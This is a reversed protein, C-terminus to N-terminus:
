RLTIYIIIFQRIKDYQAHFFTDATIFSFVRKNANSWYPHKRFDYNHHM